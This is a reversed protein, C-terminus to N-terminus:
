DRASPRTGGELENLRESVWANITETRDGILGASEAQRFREWLSRDIRLTVSVRDSTGSGKPRGVRRDPMSEWAKRAALSYNTVEAPAVRVVEGSTDLRVLFHSGQPQEVVGRAGLYPEAKLRVKDGAQIKM